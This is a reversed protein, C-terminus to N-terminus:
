RDSKQFEKIQYKSQKVLGANGEYVYMM